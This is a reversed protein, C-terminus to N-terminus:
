IQVEGKQDAFVAVGHRSAVALRQGQGQQSGDSSDPTFRLEGLRQYFYGSDEEVGAEIEQAQLVRAM